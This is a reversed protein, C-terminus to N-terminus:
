PAEIELRPSISLSVVARKRDVRVEQKVGALWGTRYWVRVTWVGPPVGAIEFRGRDDVRSFYSHPMTVLQGDIHVVNRARLLVRTFPTEPVSIAHVERPKLQLDSLMEPHAPAYLNPTGFGSNRLEVRSGAVVPLLPIAFSEGRLEYRVPRRNSSADTAGQALNDGELVVIMWPKPDDRKVPRLPNEFREVFGQPGRQPPKRMGPTFSVTGGVSGGWATSPAWLLAMGLAAAFVVTAKTMKRDRDRGLLTRVSIGLGVSAARGSCVIDM